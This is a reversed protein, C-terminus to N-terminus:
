GKTRPPAAKSGPAKRARAGAARPKVPGDDSSRRSGGSSRIEERVADALMAIQHDDVAIPQPGTPTTRRRRGVEKRVSELEAHLGKQQEIAESILLTQKEVRHSLTELTARNGASAEALADAYNARLDAVAHIVGDRLEEMGNRRSEHERQVLELTARNGASAEALADAYDARLDAVAHTVGDRLEEMDRRGSEHEREVLRRVADLKHLMEDRSRVLWSVTQRVASALGERAHRYDGSLQRVESLVMDSRRHLEDVVRDERDEAGKDRAQEGTFQRVEATLSASLREHLESLEARIREGEAAVRAVIVSSLHDLDQTDAVTAPVDSSWDVAVTAVSESAQGVSEGAPPAGAAATEAEQPPEDSPVPDVVRDPRRGEPWPDESTQAASLNDTSLTLLGDPLTRDLTGEWPTPRLAIQGSPSGPRKTVQAEDVGALAKSAFAAGSLAVSLTMMVLGWRPLLLGLALAVAAGVLCVSTVFPALSGVAGDDTSELM